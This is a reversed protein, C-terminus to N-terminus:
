TFKCLLGMDSSRFDWNCDQLKVTINPFSATDYIVVFPPNGATAKVDTNKKKKTNSLIKINCFKNYKKELFKVYGNLHKILQVVMNIILTVIDFM